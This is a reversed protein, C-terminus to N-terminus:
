KKLGKAQALQLISEVISEESLYQSNYSVDFWDHGPTEGAYYNRIYERERDIRLIKKRADDASINENKAVLPIRYDLSAHIRVHLSKEIDRALVVGARGVIVCYGDIAMQRVIGAVTKKIELDSPSYHDSFAKFMDLFLGGPKQKIIHKITEPSINIEQAAEILIDRNVAKWDRVQGVQDLFSGLKETLTTAVSFGPCGYERSITIIPGPEVPPPGESEKMKQEIYEILPHKKTM